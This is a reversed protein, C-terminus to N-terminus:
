RIGRGARLASPTVLPQHMVIVTVTIDFNNNNTKYYCYYNPFILTINMSKLKPTVTSGLIVFVQHCLFRNRTLDSRNERMTLIVMQKM